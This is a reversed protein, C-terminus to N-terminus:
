YLCVAGLNRPVKTLLVSELNGSGIKSVLADLNPNKGLVCLKDRRIGVAIWNGKNKELLESNKTLWRSAGRYDFGKGDKMVPEAPTRIYVSRQPEDNTEM